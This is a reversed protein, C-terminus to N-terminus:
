KSSRELQAYAEFEQLWGLVSEFDLEAGVVGWQQFLDEMTTGARHTSEKSWSFDRHSDVQPNSRLTLKQFPPQSLFMPKWSANEHFIPDNKRASMRASFDGRNYRGLCPLIQSHVSAAM